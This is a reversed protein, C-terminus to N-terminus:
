FGCCYIVLFYLIPLPAQKGNHPMGEEKFVCPSPTLPCHQGMRTQNLMRGVWCNEAKKVPKKKWKIMICWGHKWSTFTWHRYSIEASRVKRSRPWATTFSPLKANDQTGLTRTLGMHRCLNRSTNRFEQLSKWLTMCIKMATGGLFRFIMLCMWVTWENFRKIVYHVTFPPVSLVNLNKTSSCKELILM